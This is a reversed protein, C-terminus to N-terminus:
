LEKPTQRSLIEAAETTKTRRPGPQSTEGEEDPNASAIAIIGWTILIGTIVAAALGFANLIQERM